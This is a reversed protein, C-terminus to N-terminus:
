SALLLLQQNSLHFAALRKLNEVEEDVYGDM